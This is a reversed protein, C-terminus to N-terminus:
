RENFQEKVWAVYASDEAEERTLYNRFYRKGNITVYFGAPNALWTRRVTVIKIKQGDVYFTRQWRKQPARMKKGRITM